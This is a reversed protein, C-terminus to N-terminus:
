FNLNLWDREVGGIDIGSYYWAQLDTLGAKYDPEEDIVSGEILNQCKICVLDYDDLVQVANVKAGTGSMALSQPSLNGHPFENGCENCTFKM